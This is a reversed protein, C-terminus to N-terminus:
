SGPKKIEKYGYFALLGICAALAIWDAPHPFILYGFVTIALLMMMNLVANVVRFFLRKRNVKNIKKTTATDFVPPSRLEQSMKFAKDQELVKKKEKM